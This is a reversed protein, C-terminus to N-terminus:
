LTCEETQVCEPLVVKTGVDFQDTSGDYTDKPGHMAGGSQVWVVHTPDSSLELSSLTSRRVKKDNEQYDSGDAGSPRQEAPITSFQNHSPIWVINRVRCVRM